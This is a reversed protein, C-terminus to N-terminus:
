CACKILMICPCIQVCGMVTCLPTFYKRFYSPKTGRPCELSGGKGRPPCAHVKSQGGRGRKKDVYNNFSGKSNKAYSGCTNNPLGRYTAGM